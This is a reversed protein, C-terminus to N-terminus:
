RRQKAESMRKEHERRQEDALTVDRARMYLQVGDLLTAPPDDGLAAAGISKEALSAISICESVLPSYFSRWPCSEPRHGTMEEMAGAM